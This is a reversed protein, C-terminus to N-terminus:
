SGVSYARVIVQAGGAVASLVAQVLPYPDLTQYVHKSNAAVTIATIARTPAAAGDVQQYGIGYWNTTGDFSGQLTVTATGGGVEQIEIQLAADIGAADIVTGNGNTAAGSVAGGNFPVSGQLLDVSSWQRPM